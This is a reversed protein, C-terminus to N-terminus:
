NPCENFKERLLPQIVLIVLLGPLNLLHPLLTLPLRYDADSLSVAQGTMGRNMVCYFAGSYEIRLLRPMNPYTSYRGLVTM